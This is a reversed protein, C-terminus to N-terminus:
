VAFDVLHLRKRLSPGTKRLKELIKKTKTHFNNGACFCHENACSPLDRLVSPLRKVNGSQDAHFIHVEPYTRCISWDRHKTKFFANWFGELKMFCAQKLLCFDTLFCANQRTKKYYSLFFLKKTKLSGKFFISQHQYICSWWVRYTCFCAIWFQM